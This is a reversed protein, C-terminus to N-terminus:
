AKIIAPTKGHNVIHYPIITSGGVRERDERGSVRVSHVRRPLDLPNLPATEVFLYARELTPLASATDSAARAAVETAEALRATLATNEQAAKTAATSTEALERTLRVQRYTALALLITGAAVLISAL